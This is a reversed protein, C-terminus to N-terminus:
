QSRDSFRVASISAPSGSSCGAAPVARNQRRWNGCGATAAAAPPPPSPPLHIPATGANPASCAPPTALPFFQRM